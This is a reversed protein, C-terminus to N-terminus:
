CSKSSRSSSCPCIVYAVMTSAVQRYYACTPGELAVYTKTTAICQKFAVNQKSGNGAADQKAM